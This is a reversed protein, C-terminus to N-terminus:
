GDVRHVYFLDIQEVGLRDLSKTAAQKCHEGSSDVIYGAVGEVRRNSWKTAIFVDKRKSPNAKVWKGIIDECDAYVDAADWFWEGRAYAADLFALRDKDPQIPAFKYVTRAAIADVVLLAGLSLLTCPIACGADSM